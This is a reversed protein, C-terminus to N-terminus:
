FRILDKRKELTNKELTAFIKEKQPFEKGVFLINADILTWNKKCWQAKKAGSLKKQLLLKLSNFILILNM